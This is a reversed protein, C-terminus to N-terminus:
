WGNSREWQLWMEVGGEENSREFQLWMEGGGGMGVAVMDGSMVGWGM